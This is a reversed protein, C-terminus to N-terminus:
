KYAYLLIPKNTQLKITRIHEMMSSSVAFCGRSVPLCPFPFTQIEPNGNHILIGRALANSNTSELGYVTYGRPTCWQVTYMKRINGVRYKGLSSLNSGVKNSFEHKFINYNPGLGQACLSKHIIKKEKFSYIYFRDLGSHRSFDVLFCYDTSYGNQKCYNYTKEITSNDVSPM